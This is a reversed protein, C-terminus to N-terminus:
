NGEKSTSPNTSEFYMYMGIRLRHPDAPPEVPNVEELKTLLRSRADQWTARVEEEVMECQDHSFGDAWVARELFAKGVQTVNSTVASAHAFLNDAALGLLQPDTGQPIFYDQLRHVMGDVEKVLGLRVLESLVSRFHVDSGIELVLKEFSFQKDKTQIPITKKDTRRLWLASVTAAISKESSPLVIADTQTENHKRIEKRHVGTTVSLQSASPASGKTRELEKGAEELLLRKMMTDMDHYKLGFRLALMVVPRLMRACAEYAYSGVDGKGTKETEGSM